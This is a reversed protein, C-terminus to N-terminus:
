IEPLPILELNYQDASNRTPFLLLKRETEFKFNYQRSESELRLKLLKRESNITYTGKMGERNGLSNLPQIICKGNDYFIVVDRFNMNKPARDQDNKIARQVMWVKSSNDHFFSDLKVTQKNEDFSCAALAIAVGVFVFLKM